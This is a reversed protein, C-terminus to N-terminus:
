GIRKKFGKYPESQYGLAQYFRCAEARDAETVLLIQYCDHDVACKEIESMLATGAGNRRRDKDVIVDEVVMFPRCAGYLEECIIGMVFGVLREGEKAALLIYAPNESLRSFTIRMKEVSSSQGWFQRFLEALSKLDIDTLRTIEM